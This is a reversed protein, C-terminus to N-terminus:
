FPIADDFVENEEATTPEYPKPINDYAEVPPANGGEKKDLMQLDHVIVDSAYREIGEKDTYKTTRLKGEVYLKAGKKVYTAAVEALKGFVVCRFWETLEKDQGSTKDKWKESVAVSIRTIKGGQHEKTEIIGVHGIVQVKNLGRAV